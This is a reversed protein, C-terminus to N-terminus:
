GFAVVGKKKTEHKNSPDYVYIQSDEEGDRNTYPEPQLLFTNVVMVYDNMSPLGFSPANFIFNINNKHIRKLLYARINEDMMSFAEELVMIIPADHHGMVTTDSETSALMMEFKLRNIQGNSNSSFSKNTLLRKEDQNKQREYLQFEYWDKYNFLEKIIDKINDENNLLDLDFDEPINEDKIEQNIKDEIIEFINQIAEKNKNNGKFLKIINKNKRGNVAKREIYYSINDNMEAQNQINIIHQANEEARTMTENIVDKLSKTQIVNETKDDIGNITTANISKEQTNLADIIEEHTQRLGTQREIYEFTIYGDKIGDRYEETVIDYDDLSLDGGQIRAHLGLQDNHGNYIAKATRLNYYMDDENFQNILDIHPLTEIEKKINEYSQHTKNLKNSLIDIKDICQQKQQDKRSIEGYLEMRTNRLHNINSEFQKIQKQLETINIDSNNLLEELGKIKSELIYQNESDKNISKTISEIEEKLNDIDIQKDEINENLFDINEDLQEIKENFRKFDNFENEVYTYQNMYDDYPDVIDRFSENFYEDVIHQFHDDFDKLKEDLANINKKIESLMDKFDNIQRNISNYDSTNPMHNITNNWKNRKNNLTKINTKIKNIMNTTQTIDKEHQEIKELRDNERATVGIHSEPQFEPIIVIDDRLVVHNVTDYHYKNLISNVYPEYNKMNNELEIYDFINTIKEDKINTNIQGDKIKSIDINDMITFLGKDYYLAAEINKKITDNINPKFKICEYLNVLAENVSSSRYLVNDSEKLTKLSQQLETLTQEKEKLNVNKNAIENEYNSKINNMTEKYINNDNDLESIDIVDISTIDDHHEIETNIKEVLINLQENLKKSENKLKTEYLEIDRQRNKSDHIFQDRKRINKQNENELAKLARCGEKFNELIVKFHPTNEFVKLNDLRNLKQLTNNKNEQKKNLHEEYKAIDKNNNTIFKEKKTKLDNDSQIRKKVTKLDELGDNYRQMNDSNQYNNIKTKLNEIKKTYANIDHETEHDKSTLKKITENLKEIRHANDKQQKEADKYTSQRKDYEVMMQKEYVTKNIKTIIYEITELNQKNKKIKQKKRNLKRRNAITNIVNDVSEEFKPHDQIDPLANNLIAVCEELSNKYNKDKKQANANSRIKRIMDNFKDQNTFGYLYNNVAKQYGHMTQYANFYDQHKTKFERISLLAHDPGFFDKQPDIQYNTSKGVFGEKKPKDESTYRYAIVLNKYQKNKKFEIWIYSTHGVQPKLGKTYKFYNKIKRNNGETSGINMSEHDNMTLLNPLAALTTVSKGSGNEGIFGGIGEEINFTENLYGYFNVFGIRSITYRQTHNEM